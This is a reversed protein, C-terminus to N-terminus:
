EGKKEKLLRIENMIEEMTLNSESVAKALILEKQKNATKSGTPRGSTRKPLEARIANRLRHYERIEKRIRGRNGRIMNLLEDPTMESPAKGIISTLLKM